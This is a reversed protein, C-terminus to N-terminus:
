QHIKIYCYYYPSQCVEYDHHSVCVLVLDLIKVSFHAEGSLSGNVMTLLFCEALETYIRCYNITRCNKNNKENTKHSYNNQAITYWTSPAWKDADEHEVTWHYPEGLEMVCSFLWLQLQQLQQDTERINNRTCREELVQLIVCICDAAAEHLMSGVTPNKLVKFIIIIVISNDTIFMKKNPFFFSVEFAYTGVENTPVTDLTVAQIAVWSTFCRLIKVHMQYNDNGNM